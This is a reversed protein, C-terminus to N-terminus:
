TGTDACPRGGGLAGVSFPAHSGLFAPTFWVEEGQKGDAEERRQQFKVSKLLLLCFWIAFERACPMFACPVGPLSAQKGSQTRLCPPISLSWPM